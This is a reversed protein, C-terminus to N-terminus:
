AAHIPEFFQALQGANSRPLTTAPASFSAVAAMARAQADAVVKKTVNLLISCEHLSYRELISMVFVFREMPALRLVSSLPDALGADLSDSDIPAPSSAEPATAQIANKIVMRKSWGLAREKFVRGGQLCEELAAIFCREAKRANATLLLSLRYLASQDEAFIRCFDPRTAYDQERLTAVFQEKKRFM